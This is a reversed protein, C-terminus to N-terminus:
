GLLQDEVDPLVQAIKGEFLIQGGAVSVLLSDELLGLRECISGRVLPLPVRLAELIALADLEPDVAAHVLAEPLVVLGITAASKDVSISIHVCSLPLFILCMAKAYLLVIITTPIFTLPNVILLM